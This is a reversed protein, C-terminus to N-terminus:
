CSDLEGSLNPQVTGRSGTPGAWPQVLRVADEFVLDGLPQRAKPSRDVGHACEVHNPAEALDFQPM